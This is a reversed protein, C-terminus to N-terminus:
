FILLRGGSTNAIDKGMLGPGPLRGKWGLPHYPRSSASEAFSDREEYIQANMDQFPQVPPLPVPTGKSIPTLDFAKLSDPVWDSPPPARRVRKRQPPKEAPPNAEVNEASSTSKRKRGRSTPPPVPSASPDAVFVSTSPGPASAPAAPIPTATSASDKNATPAGLKAVAAANVPRLLCRKAHRNLNSAVSFRRGCTECAFAKEGTHVLLHKRLTSPRDFSKHCMWCNHTKKEKSNKAQDQPAAPPAQPSEGGENSSSAAGSDDRSRSASEPSSPDTTRYPIAMSRTCHVPGPVRSTAALSFPPSLWSPLTTERPASTPHGQGSSPRMIMTRPRDSSSAVSRTIHMSHHLHRIARIVRRHLTPSWPRGKSPPDSCSSTDFGQDYM